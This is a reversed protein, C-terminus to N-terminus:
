AAVALRGLEPFRREWALRVGAPLFLEPWVRTLVARNLWTRLEDATVAERLVTEYMLARHAPRDLDFRRGAQWFLRQPLEVVGTAPGRLEALDRVVVALRGPRAEGPM